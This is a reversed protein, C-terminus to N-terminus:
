SRFLRSYQTEHRASLLGLMPSFTSLQPPEADARQWAQEVMERVPTHLARLILQGAVQGLPVAKIAAAVQNEAWNFAYAALGDRADIDLAVCAATFATPLCIPSMQTLANRMPEDGWSMQAILRALSWGMQETELRLEATERTAHFWDNWERVAALDGVRWARYLLLWVPAECAAQVHTLNDQIWRGASAADHVIGCDIAAELGQSYSFGGIPLAPSALHLLSILQPLATM